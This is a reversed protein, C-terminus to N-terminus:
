EPLYAINEIAHANNERMYAYNLRLVGNNGQMHANAKAM